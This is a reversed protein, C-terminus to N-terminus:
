TSFRLTVADACARRRASVCAYIVSYLMPMARMRVCAFARRGALMAYFCAHVHVSLWVCLCRENVWQEGVQLVEQIRGALKNFGLDLVVLPSVIAVPIPLAATVAATSMAMSMSMAPVIGGLQNHALRLVRLSRM